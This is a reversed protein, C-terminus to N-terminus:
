KAVPAEEVLLAEDEDADVVEEVPVLNEKKM